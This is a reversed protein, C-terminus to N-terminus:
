LQTSFLLTKRMYIYIYINYKIHIIIHINYVTAYVFPKLKPRKPYRFTKMLLQDICCVDIFLQHFQIVHYM